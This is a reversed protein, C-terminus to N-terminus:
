PQKTAEPKPASDDQLLSALRLRQKAEMQNVEEPQFGSLILSFRKSASTFGALLAAVEDADMVYARDAFPKLIEKNGSAYLKLSEDDALIMAALNVFATPEGKEMEKVLPLALELRRLTFPNSKASQKM